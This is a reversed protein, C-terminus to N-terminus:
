IRPSTQLLGVALGDVETHFGGLIVDIGSEEVLSVVGEWVKGNLPTFENMCNETSFEAVYLNWDPDVVAVQGDIVCGTTAGQLFLMGNSDITLVSDNFNYMGAIAGLGSVRASIDAFQLNILGGFVTGEASTCDTTIDMRVREYVSGTATCTAGTSGDFFTQQFPPAIVYDITVANENTVTARGFGVNGFPDLMRFEGDETILVIIETGNPRLGLWVGGPSENLVPMEFDDMSNFSSGGGGCASLLCALLITLGKM